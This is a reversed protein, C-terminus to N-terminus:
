YEKTKNNLLRVTERTLITIWQVTNDHESYCILKNMNHQKEAKKLFFFMENWKDLGKPFIDRVQTVECSSKRSIM